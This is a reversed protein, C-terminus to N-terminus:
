PATSTGGDGRATAQGRNHVARLAGFVILGLGFVIAVGIIGSLGTSLGEDEVGEVAYGALPGEATAHPQEEDAFGEDIAVKNLGDPSSSAFPSVFFALGVAVILGGVIFLWTSRRRREGSTTTGVRESTTV